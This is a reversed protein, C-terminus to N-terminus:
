RYLVYLRAKGAGAGTSQVFLVAGDDTVGIGQHLDIGVVPSTIVPILAIIENAGLSKVDNGCTIRVYGCDGSRKAPITYSYDFYAYKLDIGGATFLNLAM